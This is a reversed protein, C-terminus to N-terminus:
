AQAIFLAVFPVVDHQVAQMKSQTPHQQKFLYAKLFAQLIQPLKIPSQKVIIQQGKQAKTYSQQSASSLPQNIFFSHFIIQVFFFQSIKKFFFQLKIQNLFVILVQRKYVDSAASSSSLTSRPPRRIM